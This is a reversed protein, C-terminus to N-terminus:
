PSEQKIPTGSFSDEVDKVLKAAADQLAKNLSGVYLSEFSDTQKKEQGRGFYEKEFIKVGDKILRAKFVVKGAPIDTRRYPNYFAEVIEGTIINLTTDEPSLSDNCYPVIFGRDELELQIAKRCWVVVDSYTYVDGIKWYYQPNIIIGIQISDDRLDKFKQLCIKTTNKNISESKTYTIDSRFYELDVFEKHTSGCKLGIVLLIFCILFKNKFQLNKM